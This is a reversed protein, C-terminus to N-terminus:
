IFLYEADDFFVALYKSLHRIKLLKSLSLQSNSIVRRHYKEKYDDIYIREGPRPLKKIIKPGPDPKKLLGPYKYYFLIIMFFVNSAAPTVMRVNVPM